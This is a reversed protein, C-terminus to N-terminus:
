PNKSKKCLRQLENIQLHNMYLEHGRYVGIAILDM